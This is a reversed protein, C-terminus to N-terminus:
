HTLNGKCPASFTSHCTKIASGGQLPPTTMFQTKFTMLISLFHKLCKKTTFCTGADTRTRLSFAGFSFGFVDVDVPVDVAAAVAAGTTGVGNTLNGAVVVDVFGGLMSSEYEANKSSM